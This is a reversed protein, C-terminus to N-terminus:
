NEMAFVCSHAGSIKEKTAPCRARAVERFVVFHPSLSARICVCHVSNHLFHGVANSSQAGRVVTKSGLTDPSRRSHSVAAHVPIHPIITSARAHLANTHEFSTVPRCSIHFGIRRRRVVNPIELASFILVAHRM